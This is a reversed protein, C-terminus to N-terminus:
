MIGRRRRIDHHTLLLYTSPQSGPRNLAVGNSLWVPEVRPRNFCLFVLLFDYVRNTNHPITAFRSIPHLQISTSLWVPQGDQVHHGCCFWMMNEIVM